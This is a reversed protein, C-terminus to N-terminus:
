HNCKELSDILKENIENVSNVQLTPIYNNKIKKSNVWITHIECKKAGSIDLELNDGIMVCEQPEHEGFQM